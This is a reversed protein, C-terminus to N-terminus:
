GLAVECVRFEILLLFCFGVTDIVLFGQNVTADKHDNLGVFLCLTAQRLDQIWCPVGYVTTDAM